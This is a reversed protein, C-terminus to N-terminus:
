ASARSKLPSVTGTPALFRQVFYQQGKGTVKSNKPLTLQAM